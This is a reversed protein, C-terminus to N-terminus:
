VYLGLYIRVWIVATIVQVVLEKIIKAAEIGCLVATLTYYCDSIAKFQSPM